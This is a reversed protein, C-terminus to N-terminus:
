CGRTGWKTKNSGIVANTLLTWQMAAIFMRRLTKQKTRIEKERNWMIEMAKRGTMMATM